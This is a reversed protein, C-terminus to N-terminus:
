PGGGPPPPAAGGGAPPPPGGSIPAGGGQIAQGGRSGFCVPAQITEAVPVGNDLAPLWVTSGAVAWAVKDMLEDGSSQVLSQPKPTGDTGITLSITVQGVRGELRKLDDSSTILPKFRVLYPAQHPRARVEAINFGARAALEDWTNPFSYYEGERLPLQCRPANDYIFDGHSGQGGGDGPPGGAAEGSGGGGNGNGAGQGTGQGTGGASVPMVPGTGTTAALVRPGGGPTVPKNPRATGPPKPNPVQTPFAVQRTPKKSATSPRPTGPNTKPLKVLEVPNTVQSREPSTFFDTSPKVKSLVVYTFLITVHLLVAVGVCTLLVPDVTRRTPQFPVPVM